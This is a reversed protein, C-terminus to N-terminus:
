SPKPMNQRDELTLAKIAALTAMRQFDTKLEDLRKTQFRVTQKEQSQKSNATEPKACSRQSIGTRDEEIAKRYLAIVLRKGKEEEEGYENTDATYIVRDDRTKIQWTSKKNPM